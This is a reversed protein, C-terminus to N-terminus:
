LHSVEDRDRGYYDKWWFEETPVSRINKNKDVYFFIDDTIWAMGIRVEDVEAEVVQGLACYHQMRHANLFNISDDATSYWFRENEFTPIAKVVNAGEAWKVIPLKTLM